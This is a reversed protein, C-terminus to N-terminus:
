VMDSDFAFKPIWIVLYGRQSYSEISHHHELLVPQLKEDTWELATWQAELERNSPDDHYRYHHTHSDSAVLIVELTALHYTLARLSLEFELIAGGVM